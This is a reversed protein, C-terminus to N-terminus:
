FETIPFTLKDWRSKANGGDTNQNGLDLRAISHSRRSIHLTESSPEM